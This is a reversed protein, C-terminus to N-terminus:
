RRVRAAASAMLNVTSWFAKSAFVALSRAARPVLDVGSGSSHRDHPAYDGHVVIITVRRPRLEWAVNKKGDGKLVIAATRENSRARSSKNTASLRSTSKLTPDPHTRRTSQPCEEEDQASARAHM